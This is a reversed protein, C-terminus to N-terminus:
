PVARSRSAPAKKPVKGAIGGASGSPSATQPIPPEAM